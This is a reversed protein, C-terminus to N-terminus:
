DFLDGEGPRHEKAIRAAKLVDRPVPLLPDKDEVILRALRGLRRATVGVRTVNRNSPNEGPRKVTVTYAKESLEEADLRAEIAVDETSGEPREYLWRVRAKGNRMYDFLAGPKVDLLKATMTITHVGDAETLRERAEVTVAQEGITHEVIALAQSKEAVQGELELTRQASTGLLQLLQRPDQLAAMPDAVPRSRLEAEMRDFANICEERFPAAKDGAFALVVFAFGSKTMLIYDTVTKGDLGNSYNPAFNRRRFEESCKADRISRIVAKHDKAFYRAVDRSDAMPIGDHMDVVPLIATGTLPRPTLANM